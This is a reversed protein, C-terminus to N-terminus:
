ATSGGWMHPAFVEIPEAIGKVPHRGCSQFRRGGQEWGEVFAASVLVPQDVTRTLTEVRFVFNVADGLATSIGKGMPGLAVTGVHLGIRCDLAIGHRAKLLIRTPSGPEVEVKRMDEAAVLAKARTEVDIGHWYAFVCDGIFKDISAGHRRLILQCDAYWERLLSAVQEPSLERGIRTFDRLDAVLLTVAQSALPGQRPISIETREIAPPESAPVRGSQLFVLVSSGLQLRDGHRLVRPATLAMDNVFSGNVSGLDVLWYDLNERRITAHQRSIGADSLRLTVGEGRGILTFDDLTHVEGSALDRLFAPM